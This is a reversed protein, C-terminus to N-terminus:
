FTFPLVVVLRLFVVGCLLFFLPFCGCWLLSPSRVVVRPVIPLLVVLLM